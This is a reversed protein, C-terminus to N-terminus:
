QMNRIRLEVSKMGAMLPALTSVDTAGTHYPYLIRPTFMAAAHAVQEPTMTYPQNMPLFAVDISKLNKMEPIDETDGAVYIRTGGITLVYGNDRGKPHFNDRGPTINYAPVAEVAIGGVTKSEGNAMATGEGLKKRSAANLIITTSPTSILRIASPDLHDPHEHTILILAAKPLRSYDAAKSYPDIYIRQGGSEIMLSGHGYLHLVIAGKKSAITDPPNAVGAPQTLLGILLFLTAFPVTM